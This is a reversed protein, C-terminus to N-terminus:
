FLTLSVADAFDLISLNLESYRLSVRLSRPWQRVNCPERAMKICWNCQVFYVERSVEDGNIKSKGIKSPLTNNFAKARGVEDFGM